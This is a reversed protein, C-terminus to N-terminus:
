RGSARLWGLSKGDVNQIYLRDATETVGTTTPSVGSRDQLDAVVKGDETFAIVHGVPKPMSWLARPIRLVLERLFPREAMADLANREGALGLWIKGNQGRTLNDPYGPLNDLVVHAAGAAKAIDLKDAGAPIKWVRYKGSEAVYLDHEDAGLLVGNALSFGTAVIRCANVVPDYEIVRGTSSQELVDLLAAEVTGGWDAPSFRTSSDSLYIKGDRAVVVANAFRIADGDVTNALVTVKGDAAISLLGRVADAAILNGQGDFALGLPRGGTRAFVQQGSGDQNMRLINGSAVSVYLQGDPGLIVHEPGVEAGLSILHRGQLANNVQVNGTGVPAKWSVADIPVPWLGLYAVLMLTALMTVGVRNRM